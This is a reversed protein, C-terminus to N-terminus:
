SKRLKWELWFHFFHKFNLFLFLDRTPRPSHPHSSYEQLIGPPLMSRSSRAWYSDQLARGSLFTSFHKQEWKVTTHSTFVFFFFVRLLLFYARTSKSCFLFFHLYLLFLSLWTPPTFWAPKCVWVFSNLTHSRSHYHQEFRHHHHHHHRSDTQRDAESVGFWEVDEKNMRSERM